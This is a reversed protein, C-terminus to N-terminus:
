LQFSNYVAEIATAYSKLKPEIEIFYEEKYIHSLLNRSTIADILITYIDENIFEEEMFAKINEKPFNYKKDRMEAFYTKITKWTLEISIEFKQIQGNLMLDKQVLTFISLDEELGIKFSSVAKGLDKYLLEFKSEPM